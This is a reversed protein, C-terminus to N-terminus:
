SKAPAAPALPAAPHPQEPPTFWFTDPRHIGLQAGPEWNYIADPPVNKLEDSVAIPQPVGAVVGISFVQDANIELM